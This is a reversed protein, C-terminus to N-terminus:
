TRTVLAHLTPLASAPVVIAHQRLAARLLALDDDVVVADTLDISLDKYLPGRIGNDWAFRIWHEPIGEPDGSWLIVEAGHHLLTLLLRQASAEDYDPNGSLTGHFDFYFRM